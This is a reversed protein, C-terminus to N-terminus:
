GPTFGPAGSPHATGAGSTIGTTNIYSCVRHYTMSSKNKETQNGLIQLLCPEVWKSTMVEVIKRDGGHSPQGNRFIQTGFSWPYTESTTLV